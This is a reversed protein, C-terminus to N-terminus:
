AGTAIIAAATVAAAHRIIAIAIAIAITSLLPSLTCTVAAAIIPPNKKRTCFV